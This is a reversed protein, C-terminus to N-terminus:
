HSFQNWTSHSAPTSVAQWLSVEVGPDGMSDSSSSALGTIYNVFGVIRTHFVKESSSALFCLSVQRCALSLSSGRHQKPFTPFIVPINTLHESVYPTAMMSLYLHRIKRNTGGRGWGLEQFVIHRSLGCFHKM